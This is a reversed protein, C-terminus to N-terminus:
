DIGLEKHMAEWQKGFEISELVATRRDEPLCQICTPYDIGKYYKKCQPCLDMFNIDFNFACKKCATITDDFSLYKINDDLYLLFAENGIIDCYKTKARERQFWSKISPLNYQNKWKKSVFCKHRIEAVDENKYFTTILEDISYYIPEDFEHRCDLCRYQPTKRIRKNPNGVRCNPCFPVPIYDYNKILYETFERKDVITNSDIFSQTYKITIERECDYFKRPHSRHQITLTKKSGCIECKDKIVEARREKWDKTLWALKWDKWYLEKAHELVIEGNALKERLEILQNFTLM